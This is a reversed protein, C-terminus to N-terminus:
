ITYRLFPGMGIKAAEQKDCAVLTEATRELTKEGLELPSVIAFSGREVEDLHDSFCKGGETIFYVEVPSFTQTKRTVERMYAGSVRKEEEVLGVRSARGFEQLLFTPRTRGVRASAVGDM